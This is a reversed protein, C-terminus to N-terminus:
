PFSGITTTPLLPLCLAKAQCPHRVPYSSRRKAMTANVGALRQEVQRKHIRTSSTRSEIVRDSDALADQIVDKGDIATALLAVEKLKQKAFAMWSRVEADFKVEEDLDFPSHLLSCSSAVEVRDKGLECVAAEVTAVAQHLDTRWVNRGDVLGLSVTIAPIHKALLLGLQKPARVLDLHLGATNLDLALDLNAGLDGFYPTLM